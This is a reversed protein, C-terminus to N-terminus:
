TAQDGLQPVMQGQSRLYDAMATVVLRVAPRDIMRGRWALLRPHQATLPVTHRAAFFQAMYFAIDAYSFQGAIYEHDQLWQEMGLYYAEIAATANKWEQAEVPDPNARMGMLRIVHPFFVEDSCHEQKRAEARAAISHPWLPQEPWRDELYEFIQTSDFLQVGEDILVPVQWKPNIRLVEPHKPTYGREFDFPVMVLDFEIGKERVAIEVKAGFMSLPGSYLKLKNM